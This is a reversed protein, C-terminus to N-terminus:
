YFSESMQIPSFQRHFMLVICEEYWQANNPM